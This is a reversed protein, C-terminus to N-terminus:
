IRVLSIKQYSYDSLYEYARTLKGNKCVTAKELIGEKDGNLLHPLVNRLLKRGFSESIILRLGSKNKLCEYDIFTIKKDLLARLLQSNHPEQKTTHSFFFYTKNSILNQVSIPGVGFLVDCDKVNDVLEIGFFEYDENAFCRSTSKQVVVNISPYTDKLERCQWPTLAVREDALVSEKIIGIKM